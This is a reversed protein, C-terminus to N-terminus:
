QFLDKRKTFYKKKVEIDGFKIITKKLKIFVRLCKLIKKLKYNEVKKM